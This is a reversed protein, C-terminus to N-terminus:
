MGCHMRGATQESATWGDTNGYGFSPTNILLPPPASTGNAATGATNAPLESRSRAEDDAGATTGLTAHQWGLEDGNDIQRM